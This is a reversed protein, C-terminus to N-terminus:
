QRDAQPMQPRPLEIWIGTQLLRVDENVADDLPVFSWFPLCRIFLFLSVSDISSAIVALKTPFIHFHGFGVPVFIRFRSLRGCLNQLEDFSPPLFYIASRM